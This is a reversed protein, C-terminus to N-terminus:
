VLKKKNQNYFTDSGIMLSICKLSDILIDEIPENNSIKKNIIIRLEESKKINDSMEKFLDRQIRQGRISTTLIVKNNSDADEENHNKIEGFFDEVDEYSM